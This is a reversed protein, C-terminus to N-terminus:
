GLEWEEDVAPCATRAEEASSYGYDDLFIEGDILSGIAYMEQTGDPTYLTLGSDKGEYAEIKVLFKKM